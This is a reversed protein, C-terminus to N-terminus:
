LYTVEGTEVNLNFKFESKSVDENVINYRYSWIQGKKELLTTTIRAHSQVNEPKDIETNWVERNEVCDYRLFKNGWSDFRNQQLCAFDACRGVQGCPLDGASYDTM